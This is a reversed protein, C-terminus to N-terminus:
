MAYRWRLLLERLLNAPNKNLQKPMLRAAARPLPILLLAASRPTTHHKNSDIPILIKWVM